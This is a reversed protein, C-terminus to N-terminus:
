GSKVAAFHRQFETLALLFQGQLAQYPLIHKAPLSCRQVSPM